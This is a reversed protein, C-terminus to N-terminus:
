VPQRRDVSRRQPGRQAEARSDLGVTQDDARRHEAQDGGIRLVRRQEDRDVVRLPEVPRGRLRDRERSAAKDGVGHRDEDRDPLALLRREHDGAEGLDREAAQVLHRRGRKELLGGVALNRGLRRAAHELRGAAVRKRQELEAAVHMAPRRRRM